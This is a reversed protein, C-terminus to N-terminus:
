RGKSKRGKLINGDGIEVIVDPHRRLGVGLFRLRCTIQDVEPDSKVKRTNVRGGVGFSAAKDDAVKKREKKGQL